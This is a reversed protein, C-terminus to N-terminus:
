NLFWNEHAVKYRTDPLSYFSTQQRFWWPKMDAEENVRWGKGMHARVLRWSEGDRGWEGKLGQGYLSQGERRCTYKVRVANAKNFARSDLLTKGTEPGKLYWEGAGLFDLKYKKKDDWLHRGQGCECVFPIIGKERMFYPNEVKCYRYKSGM